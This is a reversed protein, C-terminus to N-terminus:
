ESPLQLDHMQRTDVPSHVYGCEVELIGMIVRTNLYSLELTLMPYESSHAFGIPEGCYRGEHFFENRLKSLPCSGDAGTRAWSPTPIGYETALFSPRESHRPTPSRVGHISCHLRFCTDLVTYQGGFREFEHEYLQSFLLWHIAGFLWKRIEPDLHTRWFVLVTDFVREIERPRVVLDTLLHPELATRYFHAWGAPVLRMGDLLGLVAILLEAFAAGDADDVQVRHTAPLSYQGAPVMPRREAQLDPEYAASLPPYFWRKGAREDRQVQALLGDFEAVPRVQISRANLTWKRPWFGFGLETM